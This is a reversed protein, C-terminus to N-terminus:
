DFGGSKETDFKPFFGLGCDAFIVGAKIGFASATKDGAAEGIV